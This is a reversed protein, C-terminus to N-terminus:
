SPLGLLEDVALILGPLVLSDLSEGRRARAVLRYGNPTPDSHREIARAKIDVLWSEPIGAEAYMPLKVERDYRLTSDSIEILLVVDAPKPLEEPRLSARVRLLAIDPQPERYTGLRVPNQVSVLLKELAARPALQMTARNVCGVHTAGIPSMRIVEGDILEVRDDESLIGAEAMRHYDDVTFRWRGADVMAM